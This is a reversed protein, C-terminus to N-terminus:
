CEYIKKVRGMDKGRASICQKCTRKRGIYLTNDVDFNDSSKETGCQKQYM